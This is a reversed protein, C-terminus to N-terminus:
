NLKNIYFVVTIQLALSLLSAICVLSSLLLAGNKGASVIHEFSQLHKFWLPATLLQKKTKYNIAFRKTSAQM